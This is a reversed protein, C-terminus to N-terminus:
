RDISQLELLSCARCFGTVRAIGSQVVIRHCAWGAEVKCAFNDRRSSRFVRPSMPGGFNNTFWYKFGRVHLGGREEWFLVYPRCNKVKGVLLFM